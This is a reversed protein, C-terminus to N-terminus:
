FSLSTHMPLYTINVNPIIIKFRLGWSPAPGFSCQLYYAVKRKISESTSSSHNLKEIPKLQDSHLLLGFPTRIKPERILLRLICNQGTAVAKSPPWTFFSYAAEFGLEAMWTFLDLDPCACPSKQAFHLFHPWPPFELSTNSWFNKHSVWRTFALPWMRTRNQLFLLSM